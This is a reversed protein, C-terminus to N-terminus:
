LLGCTISVVGTWRHIDQSTVFGDNLCQKKELWFVLGFDM